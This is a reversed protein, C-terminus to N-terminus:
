HPPPATTEDFGGRYLYVGAVPDFTWLATNRRPHRYILGGPIVWVSGRRVTDGAREEVEATFVPELRGRADVRLLALETAQVRHGGHTIALAITPAGFASGTALATIEDASGTCDYGPARGIPQDERDRVVVGDTLSAVITERGRGPVIDAVLSLSQSAGSSCGLESAGARPEDTVHVASLNHLWPFAEIARPMSVPNPATAGLSLAVAALKMYM